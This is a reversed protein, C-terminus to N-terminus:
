SCSRTAAPRSGTSSTSAGPILRHGHYIVGDMDIVYAAPDPM